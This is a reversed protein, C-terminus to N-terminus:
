LSYLYIRLKHLINITFWLVLSVKNFQRKSEYKNPLKFKSHVLCFSYAIFYFNGEEPRNKLKKKLMGNQKLRKKKDKQVRFSFFSQMFESNVETTTCVLLM